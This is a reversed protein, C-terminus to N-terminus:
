LLTDLVEPSLRNAFECGVRWSGDVEQTAHVVRAPLKLTVDRSTGTLRIVLNTGPELARHFNLGIGTDSLNHAWVDEAQDSDPFYVRGLTALNCRYRVSARRKIKVLNKKLLTFEAEVPIVPESM